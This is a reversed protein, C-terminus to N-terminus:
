EKPKALRSFDILCKQYKEESFKIVQWHSLAREQEITIVNLRDFLTDGFDSFDGTLLILHPHLQMRAMLFLDNQPTSQKGKSRLLRSLELAKEQLQHHIEQHSSLNIFPEHDIFNERAQIQEPFYTDRLFEFKIVPDVLFDSEPFLKLTVESLLKEDSFLNALINNDLFVTNKGLKEQRSKDYYIQM